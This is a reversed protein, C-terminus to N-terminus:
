LRRYHLTSFGKIWHKGGDYSRDMIWQYSNPTFSRHYSREIFTGYPDTGAGKATGDKNMILKSFTDSYPMLWYTLTSDKFSTSLSLGKYVVTGSDNLQRFESVFFSSDLLYYNYVVAKGKKYTRDEQIDNTAVEWGGLFYHQHPLQLSDNGSSSIANPLPHPRAVLIGLVFGVLSGILAIRKM